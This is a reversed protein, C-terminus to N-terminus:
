THNLTVNGELTIENDLKQKLAVYSRTKNWWRVQTKVSWLGMTKNWRGGQTKVSCLGTTKNCWM